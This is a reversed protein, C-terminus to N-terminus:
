IHTESFLPVSYLVRFLLIRILLVGFYPVGIKPFEWKKKHAYHCLSKPKTFANEVLCVLYVYGQLWHSGDQFVGRGWSAFWWLRKNLLWSVHGGGVCKRFWRRSARFPCHFPVGCLTGCTRPQLYPDKEPSEQLIFRNGAVKDHAVTMAELLGVPVHNRSRPRRTSGWAKKPLIYAFCM